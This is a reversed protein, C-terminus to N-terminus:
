LCKLITSYLMKFYYYLHCFLYKKVLVEIYDQLHDCKARRYNYKQEM